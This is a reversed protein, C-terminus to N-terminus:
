WAPFRTSRASISRCSICRAKSAANPEAIRRRRKTKQRAIAIVDYGADALQRAIGLGLGRSGGTVFRPAAKGMARALKGAAGVDLAPVISIAAPVKHRALARPLAGPNREQHARRRVRAIPKLVVDAVVIAGTVPNQEPRVLSMRVRPHRNIVAEVEEPHVKLGGVNIIGGRRGVFSYRDGRQEVM